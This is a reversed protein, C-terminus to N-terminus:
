KVEWISASLGAVSLTGSSASSENTLPNSLQSSGQLVEAYKSLDIRQAEKNKNLVVMVTQQANTRFYVYIGNDPAFHTLKGSHIASATKRWNFLKKCFDMLATQQPSLNRQAFVSQKDNPWGGPMDARIDGHADTNPNNMGIETGYYIQPIGRTTAFFTLGMKFLEVNDNVQTMLRSMDHNDPMVVLNHADAYLFDEALTQYIKTLGKNYQRDDENLAEVANHQLPFDFLSPLYSVYGDHNKKGKQWYSVISPRLSWEEGVMNLNPYEKLLRKSWDTLFTKDSYPYTDIRIGDLNAYEMWWLTNQILYQAMLPNRQNMDPM